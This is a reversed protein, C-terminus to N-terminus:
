QFLTKISGWTTDYVPIASEWQLVFNDIQIRTSDCCDSIRVALHTSSIPAIFTTEFKVWGSTGPTGNLVEAIGIADTATNSLAVRISNIASGEQWGWFSVTYTEGAIVPSVLAFTFGDWDGGHHSTSLRVKVVGSQPPGLAGCGAANNMVDMHNNTGGGTCGPMGATFAANPLGFTCGPVTTLEFDGNVILNQAQVTPCTALLIVCAAILSIIRLHL